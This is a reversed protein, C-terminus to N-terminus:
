GPTFPATSPTIAMAPANAASVNTRPHRRQFCVLTGPGSKGSGEEAEQNNVNRVVLGIEIDAFEESTYRYWVLGRNDYCEIPYPMALIRGKRTKMWIPQDDCTWDM